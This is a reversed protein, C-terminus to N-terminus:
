SPPRRAQRQPVRDQDSLRMGGQLALEIVTLGGSASCAILGIRRNHQDIAGLNRRRTIERASGMRIGQVQKPTLKFETALEAKRAGKAIRDLLRERAEPGLSIAPRKPQSEVPMAQAADSRGRGAYRLIPEAPTGDSGTGTIFGEASRALDLARDLPQSQLAQALLWARRKVPDRLEDPLGLRDSPTEERKDEDETTMTTCARIEPTGLVPTTELRHGFRSYRKLAGIPVEASRHSATDVRNAAKLEVATSDARLQNVTLAASPGASRYAAPGSRDAWVSEEWLSYLDRLLPRSLSLGFRQGSVAALRKFAM